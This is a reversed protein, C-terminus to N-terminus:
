FLLLFSDGLAERGLTKNADTEFSVAVNQLVHKNGRTLILLKNADRTKKKVKDVKPRPFLRKKSFSRTETSFILM